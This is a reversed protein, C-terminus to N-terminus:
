GCLVDLNTPVLAQEVSPDPDNREPNTFIKFFNM